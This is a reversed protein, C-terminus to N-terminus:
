CRKRRWRRRARPTRHLRRALPPPRSPPPHTAPTCARCVVSVWQCGSSGVLGGAAGVQDAEAYDLEIAAFLPNDFGVDLGTLGYCLTAGKHAELPSSITLRADNDRNLVYVFKSKEAAGIMCARGKPDVALYEGPM